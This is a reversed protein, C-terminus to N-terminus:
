KLQQLMGSHTMIAIDVVRAFEIKEKVRKVNEDPNISDMGYLYYEDDLIKRLRYIARVLARRYELRKNM